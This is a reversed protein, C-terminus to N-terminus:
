FSTKVTLVSCSGSTSFISLRTTFASPDSAITTTLLTKIPVTCRFSNDNKYYPFMQRTKFAIAGGITALLITVTLIIKAKKM